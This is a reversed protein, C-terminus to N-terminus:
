DSRETSEEQQKRLNEEDVDPNGYPGGSEGGGTEQESPSDAPPETARDDRHAKDGPDETEFAM